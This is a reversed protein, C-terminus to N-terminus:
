TPLERCQNLARRRSPHGCANLVCGHRWPSRAKGRGSAKTPTPPSKTRPAKPVLIARLMGPTVKRYNLPRGCYELILTNDLRRRVLIKDKPKPLPNNDGLIQFLANEYRITWDNTLVRDQEFSFVDDLNIGKPVRSHADEPSAPAKAFKANLFDAFENELLTNAGKITTIRKLLFDVVLRDQFVQHKREVRGKARPSSAAIIEIGLKACAKGFVTRPEEGALQEELTPERDTIFVNKHDTYLACPVGHVEIWKRLLRMSVATTEEEDMLSMTHGTADDVMVMLCTEPGDEGFWRHHSGDMQVLEGFRARPERRSRYQTRKRHRSWLGEKILLRRLTEHDVVIGEDALKESM